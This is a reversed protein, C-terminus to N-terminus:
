PALREMQWSGAAMCRYRIRDHLRSERGQWFEVSEPMVRYGIWEPPRPVPKGGYQQELERMTGELIDRDAIASSQESAWAGLRSAYPRSQFYDDAEAISVQTVTGAIRVQRDLVAWYFMLTARPNEALQRGKPSRANSYFVFGTNDFDKLLVMRVDPMGDSGSTALSMANPLDIGSQGAVEYWRAFQTIPDAALDAENMSAYLYERRFQSLDKNM